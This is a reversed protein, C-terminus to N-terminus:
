SGGAPACRAAAPPSSRAGTRPLKTRSAQHAAADRSYAVQVQDPIVAPVRSLWQVAWSSWGLTVSEPPLVVGYFSRGVASPFVNPDARAYSDSDTALTRFLSSFDNDPLDTHVVSIPAAGARERLVARAAGIPLLSNRGQSAGYDAILLLSSLPVERAAAEFMEVGAHLGAAQVRSSRNYAGGGEMPM